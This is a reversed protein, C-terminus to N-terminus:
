SPIGGSLWVITTLGSIVENTIVLEPATGPLDLLEWTSTQISEGEALEASWDCAYDLIEGPTKRPWILM